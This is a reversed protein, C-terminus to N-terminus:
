VWDQDLYYAAWDQNPYCVIGLRSVFLVVIDQNTYCSGLRSEPLLSYGNKMLTVPQGTKIRIVPQMTKIRTVFWVWDQNAYCAM